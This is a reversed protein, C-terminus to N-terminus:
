RKKSNSNSNLFNSIDEKFAKIIDEKMLLFITVIIGIILSLQKSFLGIILIAVSPDYIRLFYLFFGFPYMFNIIFKYAVFPTIVGIIISKILRNKIMRNTLLWIAIYIVAFFVSKASYKLLLYFTNIEM